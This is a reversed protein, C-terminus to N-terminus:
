REESVSAPKNDTENECQIPCWWHPLRRQLEANDISGIALQLFV